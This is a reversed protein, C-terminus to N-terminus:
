LTNSGNVWDISEIGSGTPNALSINVLDAKTFNLLGIIINSFTLSPTASNENDITFSGTIPNTGALSGNNITWTLAQVPIATSFSSVLLTTTAALLLNPRNIKM